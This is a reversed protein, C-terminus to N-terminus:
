PIIEWIITCKKCMRLRLTLMVSHDRMTTSFRTGAVIDTLPLFTLREMAANIIVGDFSDFLDLYKTTNRFHFPHTHLMFRFTVVVNRQTQKSAVIVEIRAWILVM